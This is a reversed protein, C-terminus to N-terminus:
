CSCIKRTLLVASGYIKFYNQLNIEARDLNLKFICPSNHLNRIFYSAKQKEPPREWFVEATRAAQALGSTPRCPHDLQKQHLCPPPQGRVRRRDIDRILPVFSPVTQALGAVTM